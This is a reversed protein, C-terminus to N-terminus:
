HTPSDHHPPVIAAGAVSANHEVIAALQDGRISIFLGEASATLVGDHYVGGWTDIKRGERSRVYSSLRLEVGLPTPRHYRVSLSATLGFQDTAINTMGLLEDMIAAVIGGHACTPPGEYTPNLTVKGEIAKSGDPRQVVWAEIPPAIPSEVGSIPSAPFYEAPPDDPHPRIRPRRGTAVVGELDSVVGAVKEAAIFLPEADFIGTTVLENLRRLEAALRMRAQRQPATM